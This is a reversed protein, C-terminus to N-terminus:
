VVAPMYSASPVSTMQLWSCRSRAQLSQVARVTETESLRRPALQRVQDLSASNGAISALLGPAKKASKPKKKAAKADEDGDQTAGDAPGGDEHEEAAATAAAQVASGVAAGGAAAKKGKSTTAVGAKSRGTTDRYCYSHQTATCVTSAVWTGASGNKRANGYAYRVEAQNKRRRMAATTQMM